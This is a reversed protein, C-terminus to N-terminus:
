LHSFFYFNLFQQKNRLCICIRYKNFKDKYLQFKLIINPLDLEKYSITNKKYNKSAIAKAKQKNKEYWTKQIKNNCENCTKHIGDKRSNDKRFNSLSKEEKCVTCKRLEM